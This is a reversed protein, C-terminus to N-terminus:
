ENNKMSPELLNLTALCEIWANALTQHGEIDVM